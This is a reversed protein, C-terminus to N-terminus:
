PQVDPSRRSCYGRLTRQNQNFLTYSHDHEWGRFEMWVNISIVTLSSPARDRGPSLQSLSINDAYIRWEARTWNDNAAKAQEDAIVKQKRMEERAEDANKRQRDADRKAEREDKM